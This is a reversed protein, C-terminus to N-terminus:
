RIMMKLHRSISASHRIVDKQIATARFHGCFSCLRGWSSWISVYIQILSMKKKQKNKEKIRKILFADRMSHLYLYTTCFILLPSFFIFYRNELSHKKYATKWKERVRSYIIIFIHHTSPPKPQNQKGSHRKNPLKTWIGGCQWCLFRTKGTM